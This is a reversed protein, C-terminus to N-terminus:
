AWIAMLISVIVSVVMVIGAGGGVYPVFAPVKTKVHGKARDEYNCLSAIMLMILFVILATTAIKFLLLTIM